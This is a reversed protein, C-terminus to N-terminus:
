RGVVLVVQAGMLAAPKLGDLPTVMRAHVDHALRLAEPRYAGSYMVLTKATASARPANGIGGIMYGRARLRQAAGTAAGSVGGGNLILVDTDARTLMPAGAPAAKTQAPVGAVQNLAADRVKHAVSKGLIAVGIALLIALEAAALLSVAITATRWRSAPLTQAYSSDVLGCTTRRLM